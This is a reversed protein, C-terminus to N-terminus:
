AGYASATMARLRESRSQCDVCRVASPQVALRRADIDLGCDICEGYEGRALRDLAQGIARLESVDRANEADVVAEQSLRQGADGLDEVEPTVVEDSAARAQRVAGIQESLERARERLRQAAHFRDILAAAPLGTAGHAPGAGVGAGLRRNEGLHEAM